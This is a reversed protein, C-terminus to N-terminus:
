AGLADARPAGELRTVAIIAACIAAILDLGQLNDFSGRRM